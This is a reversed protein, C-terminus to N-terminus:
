CPCTLLDFIDEKKEKKNTKSQKKQSPRMSGLSAEFKSHLCVVKFEHNKHRWRGLALILCALTMMDM